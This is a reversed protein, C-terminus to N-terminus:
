KQSPVGPNDASKESDSPINDEEVGGWDDGGELMIDIAADHEEKNVRADGM